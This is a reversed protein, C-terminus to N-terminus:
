DVDLRKLNCPCMEITTLRFASHFFYVRESLAVGRKFRLIKEKSYDDPAIKMRKVYEGHVSTKVNINRQFILLKEKKFQYLCSPFVSPFFFFLIRTKTRAFYIVVFFERIYYPEGVHYHKSRVFSSSFWGGSHRSPKSWGKTCTYFLSAVSETRLYIRLRQQSEEM